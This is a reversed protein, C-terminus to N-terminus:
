SHDSQTAMTGDSIATELPVHDRCIHERDQATLPEDTLGCRWRGPGEVLHHRCTRCVGFSKRGEARQLRRLMDTLADLLGEPLDRAAVQLRGISDQEVARVLSQGAETLVLRVVRKDRADAERAIFGRNELLILSQSVTGKTLGLYDAVALPTNSYRNAGALYLLIRAHVLLLGHPAVAAKLRAEALNGLREALDLIRLIDDGM